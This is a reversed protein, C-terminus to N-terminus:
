IHVLTAFTSVEEASFGKEYGPLKYLRAVNGALLAHRDKQPVEDTMRRAQQRDDPWNADHYPFHSGWM